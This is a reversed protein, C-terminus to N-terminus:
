WFDIRVCVANDYVQFTLIFENYKVTIHLYIYWNKEELVQM